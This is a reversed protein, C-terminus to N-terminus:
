IVGGDDEHIGNSTITVGGGQELRSAIDKDMIRIQKGDKTTYVIDCVNDASMRVVDRTFGGDIVKVSGLFDDIKIDKLRGSNQTAGFSTSIAGSAEAEIADVAQGLNDQKLAKPTKRKKSQVPKTNQDFRHVRDGALKKIYCVRCLNASGKDIPSRVMQGCYDCVVCIQKSQKKM